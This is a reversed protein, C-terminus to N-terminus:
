GGMVGLVCFVGGGISCFLFVWLAYAAHGQKALSHGEIVTPVSSPEGPIGFLISTISGGTIGGCYAAVLMCFATIPSLTYTFSLLLVVGMSTSIGPLAGALLGWLGGLAMALINQPLLVTAFANWYHEFM